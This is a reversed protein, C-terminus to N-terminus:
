NVDNNGKTDSEIFKNLVDNDQFTNKYKHVLDVTLMDICHLLFAKHNSVECHLLITVFLKRLLHIKIQHENAENM